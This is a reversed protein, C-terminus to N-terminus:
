STCPCTFCCSYIALKAKRPLTLIHAACKSHYSLRKASMESWITNHQLTVGLSDWFSIAQWYGFSRVLRHLDGWNIEMKFVLFYIPLYIFIVLQVADGPYICYIMKTKYSCLSSSLCSPFSSKYLPIPLSLNLTKLWYHADVWVLFEILTEVLSGM